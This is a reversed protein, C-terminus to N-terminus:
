IDKLDLLEEFVYLNVEKNPKKDTQGIKDILLLVNSIQNMRISIVASRCIHNYNNM